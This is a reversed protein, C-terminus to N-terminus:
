YHSAMRTNISNHIAVHPDACILKLGKFESRGSHIHVRSGPRGAAVDDDVRRPQWIGTPERQSQRIDSECFDEFDRQNDLSYYGNSDSYRANTISFNNYM